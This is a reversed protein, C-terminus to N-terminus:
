ESRKRRHLMRCSPFGLKIFSANSPLPKMMHHHTGGLSFVPVKTTMQFVSHNNTVLTHYNFKVLCVPKRHMPCSRSELPNIDKGWLKMIAGRCVSGERM